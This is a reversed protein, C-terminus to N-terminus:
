GGKWFLEADSRRIYNADVALPDVTEGCQAQEFGLSGIVPALTGSVQQVQAGRFVAQIAEPPIAAPTPSVFLPQRGAIQSGVVSLFEEPALVVEEGVRQLRPRGEIGDGNRQFVGGFVQGRRADMFSVAREFESGVQAAIALLGSVMAIRRHYVEGWAKVAALGVRLGTFSGPGSGVAFLDFDRMDVQLRSRLARVDRFLRESYPTEEESSLVGLVQRSQLIAVSGSRSSTDIALILM